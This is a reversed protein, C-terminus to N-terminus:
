NLVSTEVCLRRFAASAGTSGSGMLPDLVVDGENTHIEIIRKMISVPKQTPHTTREAGALSQM